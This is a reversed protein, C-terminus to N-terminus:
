VYFDIYRIVALNQTSPCSVILEFDERLVLKGRVM